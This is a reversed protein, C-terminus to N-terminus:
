ASKTEQTKKWQRYYARIRAALATNRRETDPNKVARELARRQGIFVLVRKARTVATYALNRKLMDRYLDGMLSFIIVEFESGQSKHVTMAYALRILRLKEVSYALKRHGEFEILISAEKGTLIDTIYGLDGNNVEETNEIQMVKDGERFLMKGFQIEKKTESAPNVKDRILFNLQEASLPHKDRRPTLVELEDLSIGAMLARMYIDKIHATAEEANKVEIMCFDSGTQFGTKGERMLKSNLAIRSQKGQRYITDLYTVPVCRSQILEHLVAGPGVSPLQDPDGVFVVRTGSKIERMLIQALFADLMSVEDVIILDADTIDNTPEEASEGTLGLMKHITAASHHTAQELRRAARGTPSCLYIIADRKIALQVHVLGNVVTTKGTGPYGAIISFNYTYATKIAMLQKQAYVIGFAKEADHILDELKSFHPQPGRVMLRMAAIAVDREAQYAKMSYILDGAKSPQRYVQGVSIMNELVGEIKEGTLGEAHESGQLLDLTREILRRRTLYLHGSGQASKLVFLIGQVTRPAATLDYGSARAIGDASKFGIGRLKCLSYPDKKIVELADSGIKKILARATGSSIGHPQLFLILEREVRTRKYTELLVDFVEQKLYPKVREPENEIADFLGSGFADYLREATKKGIGKVLSQLYATIGEKSPRVKEYFSDVRFQKGYKPHDTWEGKLSIDVGAKKQMPIPTGYATIYEKTLMGNSDIMRYVAIGFGTDKEVIKRFFRCKFIM